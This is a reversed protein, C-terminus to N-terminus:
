IKQQAVITVPVTITKGNEGANYSAVGEKTDSTSQSDNDNDWAVTVTVTVKKGAEVEGLTESVIITGDEAMAATKTEETGIKYTAGTVSVKSTSNTELVQAIKTTDVKFTYDIAVESGTPDLEVDFHATRGPAIKGEKVYQNNDFTLAVDLNKTERSIDQGNLKVNWKALTVTANATGSSTFRAYTGGIIAVLCALIIAILITRKVQSQRNM